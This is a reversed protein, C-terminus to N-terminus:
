RIMEQYRLRVYKSIIRGDYSMYCTLSCIIAILKQSTTISVHSLKVVLSHFVCAVYSEQM